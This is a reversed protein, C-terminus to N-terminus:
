ERGGDALGPGALRGRLEGMRLWETNLALMGRKALNICRLQKYKASKGDSDHGNVNLVAPVKGKLDDPEYLLAPIWLGPLAEYRLKKISYGQGTEITELWDVRPQGQYWSKPVGKFVVEKRIRERLAEAQAQWERATEPPKLEPIRKTVYDIHQRAAQGDPLIPRQLVDALKEAFLQDPTIMLLSLGVAAVRLM